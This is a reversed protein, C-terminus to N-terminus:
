DKVKLRMMFQAGQFYPNDEEVHEFAIAAIERELRGRAEEQAPAPRRLLGVIAGYTGGTTLELSGPTAPTAVTPYAVLSSTSLAQM